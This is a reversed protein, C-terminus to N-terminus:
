LEECLNRDIWEAAAARDLGAGLLAHLKGLAAERTMGRGSVVGADALGSGAAYTGLEVTGHAGQSLAVM